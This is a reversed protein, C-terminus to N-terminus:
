SRRAPKAFTEARTLDKELVAVMKAAYGKVDANEGHEAERKFVAIARRQAAIQDQAFQRDFRTGKLSGLQEIARDKAVNIGKPISVNAKAALETIQTYSQSHEQVLTKGFDKVDARGARDEAMQGEHAQAMDMRAATNMFERDERSLSAAYAVTGLM